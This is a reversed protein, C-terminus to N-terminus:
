EPLYTAVQSLAVARQEPKHITQATALADPIEGVKAQAEAIAGLEFWRMNSEDMGQVLEIAAAIHGAKLQESNGLSQVIRLNTIARDREGDSTTTSQLIEKAEAFSARSAPLIGAIAQAYGIEAVSNAQSASKEESRIATLALEITAAAEKVFGHRAQEKAIETLFNTRLGAELIENAARISDSFSQRAQTILGAAQERGALSILTSVNTHEADVGSALRYAENFSATAGVKDGKGQESGISILATARTGDDDISRALELADQFHGSRALTSCIDAIADYTQFKNEISKATEIATLINGARAQAVAIAAIAAGRHTKDAIRGSTELAGAVMGVEAEDQAVYDLQTSRQSIPILEVAQKAMGFIQGAEKSLGAKALAKGLSKLANIRQGDNKGTKLAEGARLLSAHADETFGSTAQADAIAQYAGARSPGDDIGAAVQLASAFVTKAQAHAGSKAMSLAVQELVYPNATPNQALHALRLAEDFMCARHPAQFCDATAADPAVSVEAAVALGGVAVQPSGLALIFLALIVTHVVAITYTGRRLFARDKSKHLRSM